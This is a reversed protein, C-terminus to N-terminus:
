KTKVFGSYGQYSHLNHIAALVKSTDKNKNLTKKNTQKDKTQKKKGAFCYQDTEKNRCKEANLKM